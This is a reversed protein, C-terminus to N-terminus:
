IERSSTAAVLIECTLKLPRIRTCVAKMLEPKSLGTDNDDQKRHYSIQQALILPGVGVVPNLL